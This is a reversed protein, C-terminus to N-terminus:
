DFVVKEADFVPGDKCVCIHHPNGHEDKIDKVCCLCTGIGCGMREELSVQCPINYKKAAAATYKMMVMPGCAMVSAFKEGGSVLSDFVNVVNGKIGFSGDDTSVAVKAGSAIFDDLLAPYVAEKTRFGLIVSALEKLEKAAMLLPFSGIGGGVLLVRGSPPAEFGHGLPGLVDLTEGNGFRSLAATGGGKTQFIIRITGANKDTDCVSIPRRLLIGDGCSIHLFQGNKCGAALVPEELLMGTLDGYHSVKVIRCLYKGM